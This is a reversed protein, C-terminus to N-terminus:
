FPVYLGAMTSGDIVLLDGMDQELWATGTDMCSAQEARFSPDALLDIAPKPQTFDHIWLRSKGGSIRV